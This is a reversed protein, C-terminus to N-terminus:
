ISLTLMIFPPGGSGSSDRQVIYGVVQANDNGDYTANSKEYVAGVSGPSIVAREYADDGVAAVGPAVWAVGWTQCWFYNGSATVNSAALGAISAYDTASTRLDYYPNYSVEIGTSAATIAAILPEELNLTLTSSSCADHGIILRDQVDANSSGYIIVYGGALLDEAFTQSSISVQDDGAVQSVAVTTYSVATGSYHSCLQGAYCAGGAYSYKFVRGDWTLNRTGLMYRQTTEVARVGLWPKDQATTTFDRPTAIHDLPRFPYQFITSM